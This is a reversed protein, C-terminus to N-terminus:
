RDEHFDLSPLIPEQPSVEPRFLLMELDLAAAFHVLLPEPMSGAFSWRRRHERMLDPGVQAECPSAEVSGAKVEGLTRPVRIVVLIDVTALFVTLQKQAAHRETLRVIETLFDFLVEFLRGRLRDADAPLAM